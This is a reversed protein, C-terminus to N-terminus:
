DGKIGSVKTHTFSSKKSSRRSGIFLGKKEWGTEAFPLLLFMDYSLEAMHHEVCCHLAALFLIFICVYDRSKWAKLSSFFYILVVAAFLVIGLRLLMNVYSVDLFFYTQGPDTQGGAGVQQVYQGFLKVNYHNFGEKGLNLRGSLVSDLKVMWTVDARYFRSVLVSVAAFVPTSFCACFLLARGWSAAKKNRGTKRRKQLWSRIDRAGQIALAGCGLLLLCITSNRAACYRDAFWALWLVFIGEAYWIKKRSIWIICCALFFLHACFDTRYISGFAHAIRGNGYDYTLYAIYGHLSCYVTVLIAPVQVALYVKAIKDFSINKAGLILILGYILDLSHETKWSGYFGVVILGAFAIEGWDWRDDMLIKFFVLGYGLLRLMLDWNAPWSIQFMTSFLYQYLVIVALYCLYLIEEAKAIRKGDQKKDLYRALGM